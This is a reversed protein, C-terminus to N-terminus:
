AKSVMRRGDSACSEQFQVQKRLRDYIVIGCVSKYRMMAEQLHRPKMLQEVVVPDLGGEELYPQCVRTWVDERPVSSVDTLRLWSTAEVVSDSQRTISIEEMVKGSDLNEHAQLELGSGDTGVLIYCDTGLSYMSSFEDTGPDSVIWGQAQLPLAFFLLLICLMRNM